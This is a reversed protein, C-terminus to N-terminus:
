DATVEVSVDREGAGQGAKAMPLLKLPRRQGTSWLHHAPKAVYETLMLVLLMWFTASAYGSVVHSSPVAPPAPLPPPPPTNGCEPMLEGNSASNWLDRTGFMQLALERSKEACGDFDPAPAADVCEQLGAVSITGFSSLWDEVFALVCPDEANFTGHAQYPVTVLRANVGLGAALRAGLGHETNPDLTGVLVVIPTYPANAYKRYVTPDPTYTYPAKFSATLRGFMLEPTATALLRGTRFVQETYTLERGAPAFSYLESMVIIAGLGWAWEDVPAQASDVVQRLEAFRDLQEVDTPSCRSLRQWYPGALVHADFSATLYGAHRSAASQNLWGLKALCPLTGDTISDMVLRPMHAPGGLRHACYASTQSCTNLLDQHVHSVWEGNNENAWRTPDVPGDLLVVDARAGPLQLYTNTFFTGYSLAYIAVRPPNIANVMALLDKAANLTSFFRTINGYRALVAAGCEDVLAVRSANYPDFAAPQKDSDCSIPFSLGTGRHDALYITFNTMRPKLYYAIPAFANTSFGPGGEILWLGDAPPPASTDYFRRVFSPIQPGDPQAPNLPVMLTSCDDGHQGSPCPGWPRLQSSASAAVVLAAALWISAM